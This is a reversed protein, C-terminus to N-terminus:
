FRAYATPGVHKLAHTTSHLTEAHGLFLLGAPTLHRTLREIVAAKTERDFYILVNRCFILDFLGD